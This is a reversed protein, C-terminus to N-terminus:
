VNDGYEMATLRDNVFRIGTITNLFTIPSKKGFYFNDTNLWDKFRNLNEFVTLGHKILSILLVVQEKLNPNLKNEQQKYSRFTKVSVNLWDSLITDNYGTIKKLAEVYEWDITKKQLYTLVKSDSIQSPVENILSSYSATNKTKM